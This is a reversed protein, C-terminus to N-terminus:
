RCKRPCSQKDSRVTLIIEDKTQYVTTNGLNTETHEQRDEAPATKENDMSM